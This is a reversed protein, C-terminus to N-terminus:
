VCNRRSGFRNACRACSHLDHLIKRDPDLLYPVNSTATVIAGRIRDHIYRAWLRAALLGLSLVLFRRYISFLQESSTTLWNIVRAAQVSAIFEIVCAFGSSLKVLSGFVCLKEWPVSYWVSYISTDSEFTCNTAKPSTNARSHYKNDVPFLIWFATFAANVGSKFWM